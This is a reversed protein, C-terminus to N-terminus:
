SISKVFITSVNKYLPSRKGSFSMSIKIGQKYQQLADNHQQQQEQQRHHLRYRSAASTATSGGSTLVLIVVISTASVSIYM